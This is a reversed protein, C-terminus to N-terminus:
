VIWDLTYQLALISGNDSTFLSKLGGEGGGGVLTTKKRSKATAADREGQICLLKFYNYVDPL